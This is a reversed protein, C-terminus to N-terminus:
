RQRFYLPEGAMVTAVELGGAGSRLGPRGSASFLGADTLAQRREARPVGKGCQEVAGGVVQQDNLAGQPVPVYRGGLNVGVKHVALKFFVEYPKLRNDKLSYRL